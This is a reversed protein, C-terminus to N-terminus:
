CLPAHGSGNGLDVVEETEIEYSEYAGIWDEYRGRIAAVGQFTTGMGIAEWVADPAYFSM